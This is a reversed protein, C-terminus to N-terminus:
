KSWETMNHQLQKNVSSHKCNLRKDATSKRCIQCSSNASMCSSNFNHPSWRCAPLHSDALPGCVSLLLYHCPNLSLTPNVKNQALGDQLRQCDARVEGLRFALFQLLLSLLTSIAQMSTQASLSAFNSEPLNSDPSTCFESFRTVARIGPAFTMVQKVTFDTGSRFALTIHPLQKFDNTEVIKLVSDGARVILVTQFHPTDTAQSTICRELLSIIKGPFSAFDVLIGQEAKLNQFEDETVELTHLFYPDDESSVHIRLVQLM